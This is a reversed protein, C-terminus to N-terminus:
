DPDRRVVRDREIRLLDLPQGGYRYELANDIADLAVM